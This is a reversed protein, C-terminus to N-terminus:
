RSHKRGTGALLGVLIIAIGFFILGVPIWATQLRLKSVEDRAFTAAMKVANVNMKYQLRYVLSTSSLTGSQVKM